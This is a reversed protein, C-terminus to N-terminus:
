YRGEGLIFLKMFSREEILVSSLDTDIPSLLLLKQIYFIFWKQFYEFCLWLTNYFSFSEKIFLTSKYMGQGLVYFVILGIFRKTGKIGTHCM